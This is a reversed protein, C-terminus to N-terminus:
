NYGVKFFYTTCRHPIPNCLVWTLNVSNSNFIFIFCCFELWTLSVLLAGYKVRVHTSNINQSSKLSLEGCSILWNQDPRYSRLHKTTPVMIPDWGSLHNTVQNKASITNKYKPLFQLGPCPFHTFEHRRPSVFIFLYVLVSILIHINLLFIVVLDMHSFHSAFIWLWLRGLKVPPKALGNNFIRCSHYNCKM